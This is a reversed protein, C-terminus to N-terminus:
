KNKSSNQTKQLMKQKETHLQMAVFFSLIATLKDKEEKSLLESDVDFRNMVLDLILKSMEQVPTNEPDKREGPPGMLPKVASYWHAEFFIMFGAANSSKMDELLSRAEKIREAKRLAFDSDDEGEFRRFIDRAIVKSVLECMARKSEDVAQACTMSGPEKRKM